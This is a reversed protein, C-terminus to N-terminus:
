VGDLPPRAGSAFDLAQLELKTEGRFTNWRPTYVLHLPEGMRLESVRHAMGFAMAKLVHTGSRIQLILHTGDAGVIRPESALRADSSIFIPKENGPGYPELTGLRRMLGANMEGFPLDLDIELPPAGAGASADILEHARACAAARAAEVADARMELGAAQEHGGHQLMHEAAGNLVELVSFGPVSRASGRGQEGDLGVVIAPRGFEEVLRAAVIGVVGQHWGQGAIFLVPAQDHDGLAAAAERAEAHVEREIRRRETNLDDLQDAYSDATREDKALLLEVAREASGLRGSANIRPGIQFGIDEANLARGSLGTKNLLARLGPNTTSRMAVLGWHALVRNEDLMPVVDCITAIAVYALAEDLFKKHLPDVRDGESLQKLLGWALKFAVAGGCLERWPYTSDHLKPNVIAVAPPLPGFEPHPPPPEHHDTVITDVGAAKLDAITQFASTGNDVSVCVTAGVDKARDVSHPGFSYGDTLRNPIHWHVKAGIMELARMLLSTGTVGDVDYDGHILITEGGHVAKLLRECAADMGPMLMPDHLQAPSRALHREMDLDPRTPDGHGRNVFLSALEADLTHERRLDAVRAPDPRRLRWAPRQALSTMIKPDRRPADATGSDGLRRIPPGPEDAPPGM